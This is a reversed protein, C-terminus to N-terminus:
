HNANYRPDIGQQSQLWPLYDVASYFQEWLEEPTMNDPQAKEDDKLRDPYEIIRVDPPSVIPQLERGNEHRRMGPRLAKCAGHTGIRGAENNDLLLYLSCSYQELMWRHEWSLYSGLIGVVNKLGAQWVWMCAKFGEVIILPLRAGGCHEKLAPLVNHSNYLVKRRDWEERAPLNWMTYERGYLKYRPKVGPYVTRGSIAVLNGQIDRIPYTVRSHWKDYGVDFARITEEKFGADLLNPINWGDFHGLLHEPLPELAYVGPDQPDPAPPIANRAEQVVEKYFIDIHARSVGVGRLFTLLNGKAHCSHCFYVGSTINMAFSATNDDHFPCLAMVNEPGSPRVKRLYKHAIGLVEAHVDLM